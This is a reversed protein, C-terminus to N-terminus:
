IDMLFRMDMNKLVRNWGGVLDWCVDMWTVWLWWLWSMSNWIWGGDKLSNWCPPQKEMWVIPCGKTKPPSIKASEFFQISFSPTKKPDKKQWNERIQKPTTHTKEKKRPPVDSHSFMVGVEFWAPNTYSTIHCWGGWFKMCRNNCPWIGRFKVCWGGNILILNSERGITPPKKKNWAEKKGLAFRHNWGHIVHGDLPHPIRVSYLISPSRKSSLSVLEVAQIEHCWFRLHIYSIYM